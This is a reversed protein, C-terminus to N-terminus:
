KTVIAVAGPDELCCSADSRGLCLDLGCDLLSRGLVQDSSPLTTAILQGLTTPTGAPIAKFAAFRCV